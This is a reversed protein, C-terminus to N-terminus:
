EDDTGEPDTPDVPEFPDVEDGEVPDVVVADEHLDDLAQAVADLRGFDLPTKGQEVQDRLDAIGAVIEDHAKDLQDAVRDLQEQNANTMIGVKRIERYTLANIIVSVLVVLFLWVLVATDM